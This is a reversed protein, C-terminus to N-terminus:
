CVNRIVPLRLTVSFGGGPRAGWYASAAGDFRAMLRDRVNRLGVGTGGPDGVDLPPGDDEVCLVLMDGEEHASIRITVPRKARSVGYKIANEVLPQLILGPVCATELNPPIDINVVLRDPFRVSEIDLYLRQLRIEETLPLDEGTDVTLSTRFFTSLNMVMREADRQKNGLILSSLANLTNFLFHPNIQYRLARLEAQQAAVRYGAARREAASVDGAYCLAIYLAAWAAMYFYASMTFEAIQEFATPEHEWPEGAKVTVKKAGSGGGIKSIVISAPLSWEEPNMRASLNEAAAEAAAEARDAEAEARAEARDAEARARAAAATANKVARDVTISISHSAPASPPAPLSPLPPTVAVTEKEDGGKRIVLSSSSAKSMLHEHLVNFAYYNTTSFLIAAPLALLGAVTVRRAISGYRCTRLALYIGYCLACGVLAVLARPGMMALQDNAAIVAWRLTVLAFYFSWFGLISLLAVRAGDRPNEVHDTIAMLRSLAHDQIPKKGMERKDFSKLPKDFANAREV